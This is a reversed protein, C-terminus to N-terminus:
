EIERFLQQHTCPIVDSIHEPIALSSPQQLKALIGEAVHCIGQLQDTRAPNLDLLWEACHLPYDTHIVM